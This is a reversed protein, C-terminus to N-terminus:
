GAMQNGKAHATGNSFYCDDLDTESLKNGGKTEYLALRTQKLNDSVHTSVLLANTGVFVCSPPYKFGPAVIETILTGETSAISIKFKGPTGGSVWALKEEGPASTLSSLFPQTQTPKLTAVRASRSRASTLTAARDILRSPDFTALTTTGGCGSCRGQALAAIHPGGFTAGKMMGTGALYLASVAQDSLKGCNPCTLTLSGTAHGFLEGRDLMTFQKSLSDTMTDILRGVEGLPLVISSNSRCAAQVFELLQNPHRFPRASKEAKKMPEPKGQAPTASAVIKKGAGGFLKTWISM